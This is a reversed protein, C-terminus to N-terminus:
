ISISQGVAVASALMAALWWFSLRNAPQRRSIAFWTPLWLAVLVVLWVPQKITVLLLVLGVDAVAIAAIGPVDASTRLMRLEGWNHVFWILLLLVPAPWGESRVAIGVLSLTLLWPFAITVFSHLLAPVSGLTHRGIWGLVTVALVALTIWMAAPGLVIAVVAALIVTPLGVRLVLHMAGQRDRGLLMGAPSGPEFYPLWETEGDLDRDRLPLIETRGGALRWIGGWLPDALLWLLVLSAWAVAPWQRMAGASLLGAVIAWGATPRLPFRSLWFQANVTASGTLDIDIDYESALTRHALARVRATARGVPAGISSSFSESIRTV